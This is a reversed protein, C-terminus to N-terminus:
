VRESRATRIADVMERVAREMGVLVARAVISHGINLESIEALVAIPGVNVDDLGHGAHVDISLKRALSAGRNVRALHERREEGGCEGGAAAM